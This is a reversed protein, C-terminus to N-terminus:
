KRIGPQFKQPESLADLIPCESIPGEGRCRAALRSLAIKMMQLTHIKGEIEAIKSKTKKKVDGSTTHPDVRLALLESIEKLTFGVEKAHKIFQIRALDDCSYQRYGSQRRPPDSILGRREYYRITQINVRARKALQGITLGQM